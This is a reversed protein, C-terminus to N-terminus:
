QEKKTWLKLPCHLWECNYNYCCCRLSSSWTPQSVNLACKWQKCSCMIIRDVEFHHASLGGRERKCSCGMVNTFCRKWNKIGEFGVNLLVFLKYTKEYERQRDSYLVPSHFTWETKKYWTDPHLSFLIKSSKWVTVIFPVSWLPWLAWIASHLWHLIVFSFPLYKLKPNGSASITECPHFGATHARDTPRFPVSCSKSNSVHLVVPCHKQILFFGALPPFSSALTIGPRYSKISSNRRHWRFLLAEADTVFDHSETVTFPALYSFKPKMSIIQKRLLASLFLVTLRSSFLLM